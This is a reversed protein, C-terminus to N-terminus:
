QRQIQPGSLLSFLCFYFFSFVSDCAETIGLGNAKINFLRFKEPTIYSETLDLGNIENTNLLRFKEPTIYGM